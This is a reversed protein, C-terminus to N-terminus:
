RDISVRHTKVSLHCWNKNATIEGMLTVMEKFTLCGVIVLIQGIQVFM